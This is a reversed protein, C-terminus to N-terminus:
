SFTKLGRFSQNCFDHTSPVQGSTQSKQVRSRLAETARHVLDAHQQTRRCVANQIPVSNMPGGKGSSPYASCTQHLVPLSIVKKLSTVETLRECQHLYVRLWLGTFLGLPVRQTVFCFLYVIFDRFYFHPQSPLTPIRLLPLPVLPPPPLRPMHNFYLKAPTCSFIM